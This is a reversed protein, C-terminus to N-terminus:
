NQPFDPFVRNRGKSKAFYLNMDARALAVQFDDQGLESCGASITVRMNGPVEILEVQQRLKEATNIAGPLDTDPLCILYEEGGWRIAVDSARISNRICSAVSSIVTDGVAHGCRDNFDKFKDIDVLLFSIPSALRQSRAVHNTIAAEGGRRNLLGTLADTSAQQEYETMQAVLNNTRETVRAEVLQEISSHTEKRRLSVLLIAITAASLGAAMSNATEGTFTLWLFSLFQVALASTVTARTVVTGGLISGLGAYQSSKSRTAIPYGGM